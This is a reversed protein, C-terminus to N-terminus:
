TGKKFPFRNTFDDFNVTIGLGPGNPLSIMGEKQEPFTGDTLDQYLENDIAEWEHILFNRSCAMAILSATHAIPGKCQHPAIEVGYLEAMDALRRLVTIGGCRQIDPQIIAAGKADLLEKFQFITVLGEGTAIPVPSKEALETMTGVKERWTPEEIFLPNFPELAKAFRLATRNTNCTEIFDMGIEFEEGVTKRVARAKAVETKISQIESNLNRAGWKVAKWGKEKVKLVAEALAEPQDKNSLHDVHTFYAPFSTKLPGGMLKWIPVGLRKGEIDWLATDIAALATQLVAGSRYRTMRYYINDWHQEIGSPDKGIMYPEIWRLAEEVLGTRMAISGEGIGTIGGDTEIELFLM